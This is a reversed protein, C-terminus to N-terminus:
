VRGYLWDPMWKMLFAVLIWKRTVYAKQRRRQISTIIQSAAQKATCVWFKYKLKETMATEVFGPIIETVTINLNEKTARFRLGELYNSMFAKSACYATGIRGGRLSAISSIGVLSGKGQRKLHEFSYHALSAFGMANTQIIMQEDEWSPDQIGIGANIIITEVEGMSNLLDGLVKRANSTDSIDMRAIYTKNALKSSVEKLRKIRRATLGLEYGQADLHFALEMGIGSSAGIIIAKKM